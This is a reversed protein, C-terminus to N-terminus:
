GLAECLAADLAAWGDPDDFRLVAPTAFLTSGDSRDFVLRGTDPFVVGNVSGGRIFYGQARMTGTDPTYEAVQTTKTVLTEGDANEYTVGYRYRVIDRLWTGDIDFYARGEVSVEVSEVIDCAHDVTYSDTWSFPFSSAAMAAPVLGALLLTAAAALALISRRM